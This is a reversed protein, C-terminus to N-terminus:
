LPKLLWDLDPQNEAMDRRELVSHLARMIHDLESEKPQWKKKLEEWVEITRSKGSCKAFARLAWIAIWRSIYLDEVEDDVGKVFAKWVKELRDEVWHTYRVGGHNAFGKFLALFLAGHLPIKFFRMEDLLKAAKNLEGTQVAFYTVLIRYTHVDPAIISQRQFGERSEPNEKAIEAMKM